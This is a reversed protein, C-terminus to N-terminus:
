IGKVVGKQMLQKVEDESYGLEHLIEETNEGLEPATATTSEAFDEMFLPLVPSTLPEDLQAYSTRCMKNAGKLHPHQLVEFPTNVSGYVVRAKELKALLKERSFNSMVKAVLPIVYPREELRKDHTSFREGLLEDLGFEECLRQWQTDSTIGVFIKKNDKATFLDYIPQSFWQGANLPLVSKGLVQTRGLHLNMLFCGSEFLDSEVHKGKHTIDRERLALVIGLCLFIASTIDIASTGLRMPKDESGTMYLLGTEAQIPMDFALRSQYPGPGYGKISAYILGPNVKKLENYSFGLRGLAGPGRNEVLVDSQQALRSFIQKGQPSKLDVVISRKRRNQSVFYGPAGTLRRRENSDESEVKTVSAGLAGLILGAVPGAVHYGIELVKIGDLPKAMARGKGSTSAM